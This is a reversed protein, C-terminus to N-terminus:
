IRKFSCGLCKIQCYIIYLISVVNSCLHGSWYKGRFYFYLTLYLEKRAM